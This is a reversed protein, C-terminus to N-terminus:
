EMGPATTTSGFYGLFDPHSWHTIGPMIVNKFDAFIREFAEGKEPPTTALAKQVTGPPASPSVPLQGINARYDAIWDALQHLQRRFEDSPVDGLTDNDM